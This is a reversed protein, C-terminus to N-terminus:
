QAAAVAIRVHNGTGSISFVPETSGDTTLGIRVGHETTFTDLDVLV